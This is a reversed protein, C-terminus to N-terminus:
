GGLKPLPLKHMMVRGFSVLTQGSDATLVVDADSRARNLSFLYVTGMPDRYYQKCVMEGDVCFIGIDGAQLPDRNVYAVAGDAIWPAMSDGQIHVAFEAAPPVDGCVSVYDFDEGFVPAAFGAAAPSCYLPIRREALQPRALELEDQYQCLAGLVSRVTDRGVASLSRYQDLVEREDHSLVSKGGRFHDRYLTNPDVRLSDFLRLLVEEKPFSIGTEYNGIASVTVGLAEALERRSMNLQERRERLREGFGM